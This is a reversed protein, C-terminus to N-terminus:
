LVLNYFQAQFNNYVLNTFTARRGSSILSKNSIAVVDLWGPLLGFTVQQTKDVRQRAGRNLVKTLYVPKSTIQAHIVL